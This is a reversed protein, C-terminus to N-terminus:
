SLSLESTFASSLQRQHEGRNFRSFALRLCGQLDSDPCLVVRSTGLPSTLIPKNDIPVDVLSPIMDEQDCFQLPQYSLITRSDDASTHM